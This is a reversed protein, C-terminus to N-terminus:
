ISGVSRRQLRIVPFSTDARPMKQPEMQCPFLLVCSDLAKDHKDYIDYPSRQKGRSVRWMPSKTSTYVVM